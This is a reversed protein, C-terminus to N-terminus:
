TSIFFSGDFIAGEFLLSEKKCDDPCYVAIMIPARAKARLRLVDELAGRACMSHVGLGKFVERALPFYSGERRTIKLRKRLKTLTIARPRGLYGLLM